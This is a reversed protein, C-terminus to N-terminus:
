FRVVIESSGSPLSFKAGREKNIKLSASLDLQTLPIKRTLSGSSFDLASTYLSDGRIMYKEVNESHGDRFVIVAPPLQSIAQESPPIEIFGPPPASSQPPDPKLAQSKVPQPLTQMEGGTPVRVWQGDHIELLLPEGPAAAPSPPQPRQGSIIQVPSNDESALNYDFEDGPYFYPAFLFGPEPLFRRQAPRAIARRGAIGISSRSRIGAASARAGGRGQAPAVPALLAFGLVAAPLVISLRSIM